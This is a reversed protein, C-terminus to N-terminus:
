EHVMARNSMTNCTTIATTALTAHILTLEPRM